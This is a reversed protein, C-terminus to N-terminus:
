RLHCSSEGPANGLALEPRYLECSKEGAAVGMDGDSGVDRGPVPVAAACGRINVVSRSVAGDLYGYPSSM